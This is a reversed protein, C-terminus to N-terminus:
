GLKWKDVIIRLRAPAREITVRRPVQVTAEGAAAAVPESVTIKWGRQDFSWPAGSAAIQEVAPLTPDPVGLLWYRLSSLPPEFGLRATLANLGADGTLQEGRSSRYELSRGDSEVTASGFGLPSRLSLSSKDGRQQLDLQASFGEKGVAGAVRGNVQFSAVKQLYSVQEAPTLVGAPAAAPKLTTCGTLALVAIALSALGCRLRSTM